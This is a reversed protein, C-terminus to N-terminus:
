FMEVINTATQGGKLHQYVEERKKKKLKSYKKTWKAKLSSKPKSGEYKKTVRM